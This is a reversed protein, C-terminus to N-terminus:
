CPTFGIERFICFENNTMGYETSGTITKAQRYTRYLFRCRIYDICGLAIKIVFYVVIMFNLQPEITLEILYTVSFQEIRVFVTGTHM